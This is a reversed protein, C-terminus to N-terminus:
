VIGIEYYNRTIFKKLQPYNNYFYVTTFCIHILQLLHKQTEAFCQQRTLQVYAKCRYTIFHM